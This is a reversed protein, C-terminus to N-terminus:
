EKGELHDVLRQMVVTNNVLATRLGEIEEKHNASQKNIYWFCILSVCIPFGLTGILQTITNMGM